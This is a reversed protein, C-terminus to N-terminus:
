QHQPLKKSPNLHMRSNTTREREMKMEEGVEVAAAEAVIAEM